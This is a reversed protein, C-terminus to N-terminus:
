AAVAFAYSVLIFIVTKFFAVWLFGAAYQSKTM